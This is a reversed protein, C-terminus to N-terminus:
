QSRCANGGRVIHTFYDRMDMAANFEQQRPGPHYGNAMVFNYEQTGPTSANRVGEAIRQNVANCLAQNCGQLGANPSGFNSMPSYGGNSYCADHTQCAADVGNIPTGSGGPGCYNGYHWPGHVPVNNPVAAAFLLPSFGNISSSASAPIYQPINWYAEMTYAGNDGLTIPSNTIFQTNGPRQVTTAKTKSSSDCDILWDIFSCWSLGSPDTYGLPNNGVYAYRNLSQPNGFDISGNYPDPSMFRGMTSSYQRFQTHDLGSEQDRELGTFKFPDNTSGSFVQGFPTYDLPNTLIGNSAVTGVLTGLYDLLRYSPQATENGPVEAILGNPGYVMDTWAGATYRALPRGGFYITDTVGVGQKEVRNGEADYIYTAGGASTIRNEADWTMTNFGNSLLDGAADYIYGFMQNNATYSSNFSGNQLINGFSDYGYVQNLGNPVLAAPQGTVVNTTGSITPTYPAAASGVVMQAGWVQMRQGATFTSAGGIQLSLQTLGNQNTGTISFRQWSTTLTVSTAAPAGWGADGVNILFLDINQTGSAVRLYVSATVTQGDYLSPNPVSNLVYSDGNSVVTAATMTGDPATASNITASGSAVGWGPGNLQQSNPLINTLEQGAVVPLASTMVYPGATSAVEMQSGWVNIVEGAPLTDGIQIFLRTMGNPAQGTLTFRQWTSTLQVNVEQFLARGSANQGILYVNIPGSGSPSRLFVSGTLTANDYLAPNTVDNTLWGSGGVATAQYGTQSGDPAVVANPVGTVGLTNGWSPGNPQQSYLLVNTLNTGASVPTAGTAVYPGATSALEMQAGWVQVSQGSMFTEAGGIQLLLVTLTSQNTGTVQFRQWDSTLAVTTAGLASWGTTGVNILTLLINQPGSPSRMWVSGTVPLGSYPAPNPVADAFYSDGTSTVTAATNTGDPAVASNDVITGATVGWGSATLRQSYPLSNTVTSGSTGSDELKSGWLAVTQGSTITNAGGIQFILTNLGSQVKGSVQFQQWNPTVTVPKWGAVAWGNQGVEVIYINITVNGSPSSLWVSGTMTEGSYLYPESAYDALYSGTSGANATFTFASLTGDPASVGGAITANSVGWGNSGPVDPNSLVNSDDPDTWSPTPTAGSSSSIAANGLGVPFPSTDAGQTSGIIDQASMLRSLNDYGFQRQVGTFADTMTQLNNNPSWQYQKGWLLQTGTGYALAGIRERMDYGSAMAVGNGMTANVLHGAPDYGSSPDVTLYPASHINGNWNAYNVSSIRGSANYGQSITRGDPYTLSTLNGSLDYAARTVISTNNPSTPTWNAQRTVRGMADYSYLSDANVYNSSYVLRGIGNTGYTGDGTDYAFHFDFGPIGGIRSSSRNTLRNLSDYVYSTAVGRADTKNVLNGNPDYGNVCNSGSWYGYCVIGNEPSSATLLRSLSDYTFSRTRPTEGSVGFQNVTRLNGLADYIYGTSAGTPEVVNTLQGFANTTRRWSHSAEDTSTTVNGGYSWTLTSSDPQTQVKPRDLGDYTTVCNSGAAASTALHPNTVCSVRGNADYTTESSIGMGVHQYPRGYSDAIDASTITPDPTAIVATDVEHISPYSYTTQGGDPSNITQLRGATGEYSYTTGARSGAADNPDRVGTIAGSNCDYGYTTTQNLPNSSQYPLANSCQYTFTLPPNAKPDLISRVQGTDDMTYTTAVSSGTNLWNSVTQLYPGGANASGHGTIGSTTVANTTYGYTTQAARIGNSDLVTVQQTDYGTSTYTYDRERTPTASPSGAYYDWDKVATVKGLRPNSYVYQEQSQVSVDLLKTTSYSKTIYEAGTCVQTSCANSFDYTNLTQIVPHGSSVPGNYATTNSNWAGNNLTLQYVIEDSSPRHLTMNEQCGTGGSSCQTVVSPTFTSAPDTGVTRSTLWRNANQYSDFFNTWGYSVVGGTPLTVSTMEGYSDYSFTYASGDPLQIRQVPNLTGSWESVGSQQFSTSIQIPATTVTYRVRKGNNNIPGNPSLVDYYTISGSTTVIVPTRGQDDVLNGNADNSWYNGYRDVVQPYVQTGSSDRVTISTPQDLTDGNLTISYGSADSAWGTVTEPNATLDDCINETILWAADFTHSTGSPDVWTYVNADTVDYYHVGTAPDSPYCTRKSRQSSTSSITGTENGATFRWGGQAIPVNYLNLPWWYYNSYHVITWIRSDYVLKENLRLAGRQKQTALSFELHLNGNAINIFGNEVPINVGFAPSGTAYVYDQALLQNFNIGLFPALLCLLWATRKV